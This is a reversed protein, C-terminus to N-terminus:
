DDDEASLREPEDEEDEMGEMLAAIEEQTLIEHPASPQRDNAPPKRRPPAARPPSEAEASLPEAPRVTIERVVPPRIVDEEEFASTPQPPEEITETADDARTCQEASVHNEDRGFGMRVALKGACAPDTCAGDAGALEAALAKYAFAPQAVAATRLTPWRRRAVAFFRLEEGNFFDVALVAASFRGPDRAVEVVAEYVSETRAARCGVRRFWDVVAEAVAHGEPHIVLVVPALLRTRPKESIDRRRDM